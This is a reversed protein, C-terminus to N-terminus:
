ITLIFEFRNIHQPRNPKGSNKKDSITIELSLVQSNTNSKHTSKLIMFALTPQFSSIYNFRNEHNYQLVNITTRHSVSSKWESTSDLTDYKHRITVLKETAAGINLFIPNELRFHVTWINMPLSTHIVSTQFMVSSNYRLNFSVLDALQTKSVRLSPQVINVAVETMDNRSSIKKDLFHRRNITCGTYRIIDMFEISEMPWKIGAHSDYNNANTPIPYFCTNYMDETLFTNLLIVEKLPDIVRKLCYDVKGFLKMSLMFAMYGTIVSALSYQTAPVGCSIFFDTTNKEVCLVTGVNGIISESLPISGVPYFEIKNDNESYIMGKLEIIFDLLLARCTYVNINNNSRVMLDIQTKLWWPDVPHVIDTTRINKTSIGLFHPPIFMCTNNNDVTGTGIDLIFSKDILTREATSRELFSTGSIKSLVQMDNTTYLNMFLVKSQKSLSNMIQQRFLASISRLYDPSNTTPKWIFFSYLFILRTVRQRSMYDTDQHTQSIRGIDRLIIDPKIKYIHYFQVFFLGCNLIASIDINSPVCLSYLIYSADHSIYAVFLPDINNDICYVFLAVIKWIPIIRSGNNIFDLTATRFMRSILHTPMKVALETDIVNSVVINSIDIDVNTTNTDNNIGSKYAQVDISQIGSLTRLVHANIGHITKKKIEVRTNNSVVLRM